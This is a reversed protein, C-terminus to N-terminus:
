LGSIYDGSGVTWSGILIPDGSTIFDPGEVFSLGITWEVGTLPHTLLYHRAFLSWGTLRHARGEANWATKEEASLAHWAAMGNAFIQRWSQQLGTRPNTPFYYVMIEQGVDRCHGKRRYRYIWDGCRNRIELGQVLM